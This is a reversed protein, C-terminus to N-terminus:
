QDDELSVLSRKEDIVKTEIIDAFISNIMLTFTEGTSILGAHNM